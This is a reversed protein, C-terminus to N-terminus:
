ITQILFALTASTWSSRMFSVLPLEQSYITRVCESEGKVIRFEFEEPLGESFLKLDVGDGLREVDVIKVAFGKTVYLDVM